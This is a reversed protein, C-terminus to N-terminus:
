LWRFWFHRFPQALCTLCMLVMRTAFVSNQRRIGYLHLSSTQFPKIDRPRALARTPCVSCSTRSLISVTIGLMSLRIFMKFNLRNTPPSSPEHKPTVSGLRKRERPGLSSRGSGGMRQSLQSFPSCLQAPFTFAIRASKASSRSLTSRMWTSQSHEVQLFYGGTQRQRFDALM